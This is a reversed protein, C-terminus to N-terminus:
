WDGGLRRFLVMLTERVQWVVAGMRQRVEQVVGRSRGWCGVTAYGRQRKEMETM